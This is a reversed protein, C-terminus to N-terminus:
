TLDKSEEIAAVIHDYKKPLSRILREIVKQENLNDGLKRIQNVVNIMNSIYDHM